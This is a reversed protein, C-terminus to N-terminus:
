ESQSNEGWTKWGDRSQRGFMELYPAHSCSEALRYFEGPKSSHGSGRKAAFWTGVNKVKLPLSGKVGFLVHETQGRFYNGLGFSPKCWTLITVYRFGWSELLSFGKPLSRNTIWLYLHCDDAALTGVPLKHIQEITMTAYTPRSRGLQDQDGEDGWDWPPDIVITHFLGNSEPGLSAVAAVKRVNVQRKKARNREKIERRLQTRTKKGNRIQVFTEEPATALQQAAASEKKSVGIEALTPTRHGNTVASKGIGRAGTARESELLMKGMKREAELAYSRCHQIADEGMGKRKAWDAATLALSKLEKAKQLTDAEALMVAARTFIELSNTM